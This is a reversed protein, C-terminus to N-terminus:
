TNVKARIVKQENELTKEKLAGYNAWKWATITYQQKNASKKGWIDKWWVYPLKGACVIKILYRSIIRKNKDKARIDTVLDRIELM